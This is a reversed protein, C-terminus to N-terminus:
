LNKEEFFLLKAWFTVIYVCFANELYRDFYQSFFGSNKDM